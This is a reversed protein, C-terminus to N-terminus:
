QPFIGTIKSFQIESWVMDHKPVVGVIFQGIFRKWYDIKVEPSLTTLNPGCGVKQAQAFPCFKFISKRVLGYCTKASNGSYTLWSVM